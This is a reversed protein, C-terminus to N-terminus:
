LGATRCSDTDAHGATRGPISCARAIVCAEVLMGLRGSAKALWLHQTARVQLKLQHASDSGRFGAATSGSFWM